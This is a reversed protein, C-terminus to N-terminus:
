SPVSTAIMKWQKAIITQLQMLKKIEEKTERARAELEDDSLLLTKDIVLNKIHDCLNLVDTDPM